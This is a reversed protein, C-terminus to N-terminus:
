SKQWKAPPHHFAAAQSLKDCCGQRAEGQRVGLPLLRLKKMKKPCKGKDNNRDNNNHIDDGKDEKVQSEKVVCVQM